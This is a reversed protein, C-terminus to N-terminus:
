AHPATSDLGALAGLERAIADVLTRPEPVVRADAGVGIRLNGAYSFLTVGLALSGTVPAWVLVDELPHGALHLTESPGAINTIMISV